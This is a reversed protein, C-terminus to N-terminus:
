KSDILKAGVLEWLYENGTGEELTGPNGAFYKFEGFLCGTAGNGQDGCAGSTGGNLDVWEIDFGAWAVLHYWQRQGTGDGATCDNVTTGAPDESCTADFIPIIVVEDDPDNAYTMLADEIYQASLNGTSSVYYWEPTVIEPNDPTLIACELEKTGDGQECQSVYDPDDAGSRPDWDLWGVNGPGNSCLPVIVQNVNGDVDPSVPWDKAQEDVNNENTCLTFKLPVTVPLVNGGFEDWYGAIATGKTRTTWDIIGLIRGIFLDFTKTGTAEVGDAAAPPVDGPPLAGEGILPAGGVRDGDFDTYWAEYVGVENIDATAIVAAAVDANTNPLPEGAAIFPLNEALLMAGAEAAADSANQTDRQQGWAHGADIVLGVMAVIVVLGAAVIVLVQGRESERRRPMSLMPLM